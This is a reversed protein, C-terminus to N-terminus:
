RFRNDILEFRPGLLELRENRGVSVRNNVRNALQSGLVCNRGADRNQRSLTKWLWGHLLGTPRNKGPVQDDGGIQTSRASRACDYLLSFRVGNKESLRQTHYGSAAMYRMRRGQHTRM